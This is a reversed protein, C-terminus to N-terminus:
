TARGAMIAEILMIDVPKDADICAEPESMPVVAQPRVWVGDMLRWGERMPTQAPALAVLLLVPILWCRILAGM